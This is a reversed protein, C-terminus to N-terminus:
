KVRVRGGSTHSVFEPAYLCQITTIGNSYDGRSNVYLPYEFVYVGKPLNYFYFNMSADRTTQYYVTSQTWRIGSLQEVPEFCSARMDKLLVYELDRDSRVTLRVIAKDGVRLPHEESVPLLTKGASTTKEIFLSKEVKLETKASTIKDLDEFYQWYLAGWGPAADEKTIKVRSMDQTISPADRVIKLYGTGAEGQQTDVTQNGWQIATKGENELRNTGTNLLIHIANVTAPVSEWEQTQKQKLLWLKMEDTEAANAGTELFAEMIFSHICVASQFFFAQTTNNAWFMGSDPKRSAHERLSQVISLATKTNGSRHLIIAAIARHYLRPTNTWHKDALNTYFQVAEKAEKLPIDRHLSRVLLYELECTSINKTKEWESNHKKFNEFHEKIRRDIFRIAKEKMEKIEEMEKFKGIEGLGYLIWQTISVDANMGKFWSWGGEETQFSQLKEIAQRNLYHTRNPDFLLELRQKQETENQAELMWPTEELLVAKLERNKELNSLLTEKTEKQKTWIDIIQKIKPTSGAIQVAQANAYYAAFWSLANDSQPTTLSPLAQVAYWTPNSAFELTLRYNKLTSSNNKEMKDFSFTRTQNGQINLPLSETVQIRNPLIPILHQEGDSFTASRAVIKLATLDFGSPVDFTWSVTATKGAELSFDKSCGDITITPQNTNPDSCEISVTGGLPEDSLNSINSSITTKDGERFFRPINPAIMLQKQAIAQEIIQGYKLDKTHALGMLKWSTNSEPLTFSLLTEGDAGTKLQPYFFATENFNRRIQVPEEEPAPIKASEQAEEAKYETLDAIDAAESETAAYANVKMKTVSRKGMDEMHYFIATENGTNWGFWNLNDFNFSPAPYNKMPVALRSNSSSFENGAIPRPAPLYIPTTPNFNWSHGYIKDLSADYMGVLLEALVPNAAADKVSIKWEEQQGPLLRDRFVEMKLNLKKDPQKKYINVNQTFLQNDKVFTFSATIGEGYSELFPIEIKRNENNLIFRSTSLKKDNRFTEYLVYVNKASSGYIIEAKEGVSCATKPTLLWEYVPIPPRQDGLTYLTFDFDKKEVEKESLASGSAALETVRLRYRGSSFSKLQSLDIEKGSEFNGSLAKQVPIWESNQLNMKAPNEPKLSYIEYTGTIPLPNGSWNLANIKVPPLTDKNVSDLWGDVTLYISKDGIHLSTQSSQTEGNSNSITTEVTFTYTAQRDKDEFAKVATFAIEFSGDERTQVKGEAIQTPQERRWERSFLRRSQRTIRYRLTAEQLNVGSFTKATGKVKVEDGLRCAKENKDFLIDFAPRKYEEVRFSHYGGKPSQISFNGNMLGQPLVFEGTISGFEGTTFEKSTIEKGNADHLALTYKRRSIVKLTNEGTEYAIGKFYITQGPRYISRDTFLNLVQRTTNNPRYSSIWPVPSMILTTDNGFAANYFLIEKNDNGSALGLKGTILTETEVLEPANNKRKYFQIRAGEVPKGSLRDVVLFERKGAATKSITALRSVSFQGNAPEKKSSDSYIVYEYSGSKRVPIKITTDAHFYPYPNNLDIKKTDVLLGHKKYQKERTWSNAYISIPANIRYIKVTLQKINQYRINLEPNEGPYVTNNARVELNGQTIENLKNKLLGIREYRPYKEIGETCLEYIKKAKAKQKETRDKEEGYYLLDSFSYHLIETYFIEACFDHPAYQKKLQQLAELYISDANDSLTNNRVFELRDLDVTLMALSKNGGTQKHHFSLLDKYLRLIQPVFDCTETAVPMRIFEHLPAFNKEGSLRTQPFYNQTRNDMALRKLQEIGRHALFDYLTPRLNRSSEGEILIEKYDLTKTNQLEDVPTLSLNVYRAITQIFLNAPWERFDHKEGSKEEGSLPTPLATRQNIKHQNALYYNSYLEAIISYLLSQETKNKSEQALTEMERIIDSLKDNDIATEYKLKHILSKILEPTNGKKKAERYIQDVAELASQPLSQKEFNEVKKWLDSFDTQASLTAASLIIGLLLIKSKM